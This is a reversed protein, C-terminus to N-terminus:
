PKAFERDDVKELYRAEVLEEDIYKKGERLVVAKKITKIGQVDQYEKIIREENANEGTIPDEFLHSLKV